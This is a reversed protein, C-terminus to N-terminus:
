FVYNLRSVFSLFRLCLSVLEYWLAIRLLSKCKNPSERKKSNETSKMFYFVNTFLLHISALLSTSSNLLFAFYFYLYLLSILDYGFLNFCILSFLITHALPDMTVVIWIPSCSGSSGYQTLSPDAWEM